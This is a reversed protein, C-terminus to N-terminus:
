PEYDPFSYVSTIYLWHIDEAIQQLGIRLYLDRNEFKSKILDNIQDSSNRQESLNNLYNKFTYDKVSLNYEENKEDIFSLICEKQDNTEYELHNIKSIKITGMSKEIVKSKVFNGQHIEDHFIDSVAQHCDYDLLEKIEEESLNRIFIPSINNDWLKDELYSSEINESLLKLKVVSFSRINKNELSDITENIADTNPILRISNGDNDIAHVTIKDNVNYFLDTIIVTKLEEAPLTVSSDFENLISNINSDKENNQVQTEVKIKKAYTYWSGKAIKANNLDEESIIGSAIIEKIKKNDPSLVQEWLGKQLLIPKLKDEDWSVRTIYNRYVKIDDSIIENVRKQDFIEFLSNRMKKRRSELKNIQSKLEYYERAMQEPDLQM